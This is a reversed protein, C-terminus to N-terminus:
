YPRTPEPKTTDQGCGTLLATLTLAGVTATAITRNM